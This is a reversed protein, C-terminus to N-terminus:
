KKPAPLYKKNPKPLPRYQVEQLSEMLGQSCESQSMIKASLSGRLRREYAGLNQKRRRLERIGKELDTREKAVAIVAQQAKRIADSPNVTCVIETRSHYGNEGFAIEFRFVDDFTVDSPKFQPIEMSKLKITDVGKIRYLQAAIRKADKVAAVAKKNVVKKQFSAITSEVTKKVKAAAEDCSELARDYEGLSEELQGELASVLVNIGHEGLRESQEVALEATVISANAKVLGREEIIGEVVSDALKDKAKASVTEKNSM